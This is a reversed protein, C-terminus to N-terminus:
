EEMEVGQAEERWHLQLSPLFSPHFLLLLLLSSYLLLSLLLLFPILLLASPLLLSPPLPLQVILLYGSHLLSPSSAPSFQKSISHVTQLNQIQMSFCLRCRFGNSGGILHRPGDAEDTGMRLILSTHFSSPFYSSFSLPSPSLSPNYHIFLICRLCRNHM